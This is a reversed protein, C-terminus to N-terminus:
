NKKKLKLITNIYANFRRKTKADDLIPVVSGSSWGYEIGSYYGIFGYALAMSMEPDSQSLGASVADAPLKTWWAGFVNLGGIPKAIYKELAYSTIKLIDKKNKNYEPVDLLPIMTFLWARFTAIDEKFTAKLAKDIYTSGKTVAVHEPSILEWLRDGKRQFTLRKEKDASNGFGQFSEVNQGFQWHGIAIYAKLQRAREESVFKNIPLFYTEPGLPTRTVIEHRGSNSFSLGSPLWKRLCGYWSTAFGHSANHITVTENGDPLRRWVIPASKAVEAKTSLIPDTEGWYAVDDIFGYDMLAYTNASIKNIRKQKNSRSGIPRVDQELTNYKSVVPKITNYLKEVEDFTNLYGM